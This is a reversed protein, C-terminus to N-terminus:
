MYSNQFLNYIMCFNHDVVKDHLSRSSFAKSPGIGLKLLKSDRSTNYTNKVLVLKRCGVFINPNAYISLQVENHM